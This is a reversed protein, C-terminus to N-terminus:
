QSVKEAKLRNKFTEPRTKARLSNPLSNWHEVTRVTFSQKRVDTRAYQAVLGNVGAATRTRAGGNERTLPFRNQDPQKAMYTHRTERESGASASFFRSFIKQEKSQSIQKVM